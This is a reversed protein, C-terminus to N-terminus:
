TTSAKIKQHCVIYSASQLDTCEWLVVCYILYHVKTKLFPLPSEQWQAKQTQFLLKVVVSILTPYYLLILIICFFEELELLLMLTFSAFSMCFLPEFPTGGMNSGVVGEHAIIKSTTSLCLFFSLFFLHKDFRIPSALVKSLTM